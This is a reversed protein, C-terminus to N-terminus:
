RAKARKKARVRKIARKADVTLCPRCRKALIRAARGGCNGCLGLRERALQGVRAKSLRPSERRIRSRMRALRQDLTLTM